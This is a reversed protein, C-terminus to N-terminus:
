KVDVGELVCRCDQGARCTLLILVERVLYLVERGRKFIIFARISLSLVLDFGILPMDEPEVIFKAGIYRQEVVGEKQM